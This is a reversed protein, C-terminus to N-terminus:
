PFFFFANGRSSTVLCMRHIFNLRLTKGDNNLVSCAFHNNGAFNGSRNGSAFNLYVWLESILSEFEIVCFLGQRSVRSHDIIETRRM